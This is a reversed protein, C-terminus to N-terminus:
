SVILRHSKFHAYNCMHMALCTAVMSVQLSSLLAVSKLLTVLKMRTEQILGRDFVNQLASFRVFGSKESILLVEITLSVRKGASTSLNCKDDRCWQCFLSEPRDAERPM